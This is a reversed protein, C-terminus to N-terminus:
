KKFWRRKIWLAAAGNMPFMVLWPLLPLGTKALYGMYVAEKGNSTVLRVLNETNRAVNLKPVVVWVVSDSWSMLDAQHGGVYVTGNATGFHSGYIGLQVMGDDPGESPAIRNIIPSDGGTSPPTTTSVTITATGTKTISGQTATVSISASGTSSGATYTVPSGSTSGLSGVGSITWAFTVGSSITNGSADKATATLAQSGNPAVTSSAPDIAVSTLDTVVTGAQITLAAETVAGLIDPNTTTTGAVNSDTTSGATFDFDLNVVTGVPNSAKPKFVLNAFVGNGNTNTYTPISGEEPAQIVRAMSIRGTSNVTATNTPVGRVVTPYFSGSGSGPMTGSIFELQTTTFTVIVDAGASNAGHTNVKVDVSFNGSSNLSVNGSSASEGPPSFYLVAPTTQAVVLLPTAVVQLLVLLTTLLKKM